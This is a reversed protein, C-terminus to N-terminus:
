GVLDDFDRNMVPLTLRSGRPGGLYVSQRAGELHTAQGAPVGTSPNRDLRPFNSSSIEVRIRHGAALAMATAGVDVHIDQPTGPEFPARLVSDVVSLARGDPHVDVLKVTVDASRGTTAFRIDATIPGIVILPETLPESTYVLVDAREEVSRQDVPGSFPLYPGLTRGGRTPVPDDPDYDYHDVHEHGPSDPRLGGDGALGNAGSAADMWLTVPTAPPPWSPVDIWRNPGMVFLRAGNEVPKGDIARALWDHMEERIPAGNAEPGYAVEPTSPLFLGGHAWPGVVLRRPQRPKTASGIQQWTRLSGDCFLDHWGAVHFTPVDLQPVADTLDRWWAPQGPKLWEALAPFLERVPHDGLPLRYVDDIDAILRQTLNRQETTGRPDAGAVMIAWSLAWGLPFAGGERLWGMDPYASTILLGMARLAAPRRSAALLQTIGDYSGGIAVVRGDCWEQDACWAMTAAGDDAERAFPEFTGESDFRGRVDQVLVSWGKRALHLPDAAQRAGARSYPTRALVTPRPGADPVITLDAALQSGDPMSIDLDQVVVEGFPRAM